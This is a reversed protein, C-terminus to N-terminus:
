VIMGVSPAAAWDSGLSPADATLEDPSQHFRTALLWFEDHPVPFGDGGDAIGGARLLISQRGTALAQCVAAWEKLAWSNTPLM